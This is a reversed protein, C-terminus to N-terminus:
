HLKFELYIDVAVPVAREAVKAPTFEYQKAAALAADDLGTTKDLSEVVRARAVTGDPAVVVQVKVNGQIKARMADPTYKPMVKKILVPLVLGPTEKAVTGKLFEDTAAQQKTAPATQQAASQAGLVGTLGAVGVLGALVVNWGSRKM